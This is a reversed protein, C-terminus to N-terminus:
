VGESGVKRNSREVINRTKEKDKEKLREAFADREKIDQSRAVEAEDVSAGAAHRQLKRKIHSVSVDDEDDAGSHHAERFHRKRIQRKTSAMQLVNLFLMYSAEVTVSFFLFIDVTM